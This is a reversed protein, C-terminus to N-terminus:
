ALICTFFNCYIELSYIVCISFVFRSSLHLRKHVFQLTVFGFMNNSNSWLSNQTDRHYRTQLCFQKLTFMTSFSFSHTIQKANFCCCLTWTFNSGLEFPHSLSIYLIGAYVSLYMWVYLTNSKTSCKFATALCEQGFM